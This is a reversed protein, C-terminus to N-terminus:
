NDDKLEEKTLVWTKGYDKLKAKVTGMGYEFVYCEFYSNYNLSIGTLKRFINNKKTLIGDKLAKFLVELPIGLEKELDYIRNLKDIDLQIDVKIGHQLEEDMGNFKGLKVKNM